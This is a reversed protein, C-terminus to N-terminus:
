VLQRVVLIAVSVSSFALVATRTHGRDLRRAIPHSLSFGAVVAPVLLAGLRLQRWGLEGFAGLMVLSIVGSVTFYAALTGRLSVGSRHQLALAVPPGGVSTATGAFGSLVGAAALTPRGPEVRPSLVSLVILGGIVVAVLVDLSGNAVASVVAAGAVSGPVAGAVLWGTGELDLGPHDRFIVLANLVLGCIILPAPVLDPEVIVIFPASLLAFGFGAGGQVVCGAGVALWVLVVEAPNM